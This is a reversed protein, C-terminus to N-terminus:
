SVPMRRNLVFNGRRAKGVAKYAKGPYRRPSNHSNITVRRDRTRLRQPVAAAGVPGGYTLNRGPHDSVSCIIPREVPISTKFSRLGTRDDWRASGNRVRRSFSPTFLELSSARRSQEGVSSAFLQLLRLGAKIELREPYQKGRRPVSLSLGREKDNSRAM